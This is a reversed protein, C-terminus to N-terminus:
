RPITITLGVDSEIGLDQFPDSLVLPISNDTTPGGDSTQAGGALVFDTVGVEILSEVDQPVETLPTVQSVVVIASDPPGVFGEEGRISRQTERQDTPTIEEPVQETLQVSQEIAELAAPDITAPASPAGKGIVTTQTNSPVSEIEPIAPDLNRATVTGELVFIETTPPPESFRVIFLTGRVGAVANPTRVEVSSGAGLIRRTLVKVTGILLSVVSRQQQETLLFETFTMESQEALTMISEDRLLVKIKSAAATRVTDGRLIADRFHLQTWTTVGQAQVQASGEVALITGIRDADQAWASTCLVMLAAMLGLVVGGIAVRVRNAM